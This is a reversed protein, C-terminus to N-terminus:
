DASGCVQEVVLRQSYMRVRCDENAESRFLLLLHINEVGGDAKRHSQFIYIIEEFINLLCKIFLFNFYNYFNFFNFGYTKHSFSWCFFELLSAIPKLEKLKKLKKLKQVQSLEPIIDNKWQNKTANFINYYNQLM